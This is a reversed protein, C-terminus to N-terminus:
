QSEENSVDGLKEDIEGGGVSGKEELERLFPDIREMFESITERLYRVDDKTQLGMSLIDEMTRMAAEEAVSKAEQRVPPPKRNPVPTSRASQAKPANRIPGGVHEVRVKREDVFGMFKNCSACSNYARNPHKATPGSIKQVINTPDPCGAEHKGFSMETLIIIKKRNFMFGVHKKNARFKTMM